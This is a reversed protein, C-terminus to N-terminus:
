VVMPSAFAKQAQEDRARNTIQAYVLTNKIHKHGAWDQVFKIEAGADLLHTCISHKLVHFHRKDLPIDAMAGYIRMYYDLTRRSIPRGPWGPFLHPSDDERELLWNQLAEMEDPQMPYEGSLSGKERTIFIRARVFNVDDIKLMGVEGVRLAHRYAILFIALNRKKIAINKKIASPTKFRENPACDEAIVAFFRKLQEQTLYKIRTSERGIQPKPYKSLCNQLFDGLRNPCQGNDQKHLWFNITPQPVNLYDAVEKQNWHLELCLRIAEQRLKQREPTMSTTM